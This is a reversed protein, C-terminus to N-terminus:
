ITTVNLNILVRNLKYPTLASFTNERRYVTDIIFDPIYNSSESYYYCCCRYIPEDKLFKKAGKPATPLFGFTHFDRFLYRRLLRLDDRNKCEISKSFKEFTISNKTSTTVYLFVRLYISTQNCNKHKKKCINIRRTKSRWSKNPPFSPLDGNLSAPLDVKTRLM